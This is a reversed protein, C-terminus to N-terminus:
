RTGETGSSIMTATATGNSETARINATDGVKATETGSQGAGRMVTNSDIVYTHTYGDSSKATISTASVASVTGIQTLETTYNGNGDSVVFEGHLPAGGPGGMGGPGPATGAGPGQASGPGQMGGPGQTGFGAPGATNTGNSTAAYIAAGGGAAVVAAIGIAAATKRRSWGNAPKAQPAGWVPAPEATSAQNEPHHITM